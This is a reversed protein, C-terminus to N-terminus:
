AARLIPTVEGDSWFILDGRRQGVRAGHGQWYRAYEAVSVTDLGRSGPHALHDAVVGGFGNGPDALVATGVISGLLDPAPIAQGDQLLPSPLPADMVLRVFDRRHYLVKINVVVGGEALRHFNGAPGGSMGSVRVEHGQADVYAGGIGFEAITLLALLDAVNRPRM